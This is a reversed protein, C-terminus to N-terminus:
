SLMRTNNADHFPVLSVCAEVEEGEIMVAYNANELMHKDLESLPLDLLCLGVASGVTNGYAGSTVFGVVNKDRLVPENHHMLPLSDNLKISCLFPGKNEARRYQYAKQGIFPISKNTKCIFDLGLQHPAESYAMDHGWHLFGKEIRLANLAESGVLKLGFEQGKEFLVDFVHEAFDPTVFIEWGLEGTYSLRQATVKAHGIYMQRFSNFAFTENSVDADSVEALLDRSKPGVIALVGFGTTIDRLRVDEHPLINDRLHLYDLQARSISSMLMYSNDDYRAVTADSEIGGRENLMLTYAIRGNKVQWTTQVCGSYFHNHM